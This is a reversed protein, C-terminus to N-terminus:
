LILTASPAESQARRLIEERDHVLHLSQVPPGTHRIPIYQRAARTLLVIDLDKSVTPNVAEDIAEALGRGVVLAPAPSGHDRLLLNGLQVIHERTPGNRLAAMYSPEDAGSGISTAELWPLPSATLPSVASEFDIRFGSSVMLPSGGVDIASTRLVLVSTAEGVAGVADNTSRLHEIWGDIQETLKAEDRGQADMYTHLSDLADSARWVDGALGVATRDSFAYIKQVGFSYAHYGDDAVSGVRVDAILSAWEVGVIGIVWTVPM